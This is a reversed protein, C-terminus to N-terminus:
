CYIRRVDPGISIEGVQELLGDGEEGLLPLALHLLQLPSVIEGGLRTLNLHTNIGDRSRAKSIVVDLSNEKIEWNNSLDESLVSVFDAFQQGKSVTIQPTIPDSNELGCMRVLIRVMSKELGQIVNLKDLDNSAHTRLPLLTSLWFHVAAQTMCRQHPLQCDDVAYSSRYVRTNLGNIIIRLLNTFLVFPSKQPVAQEDSLLRTAQSSLTPLYTACLVWGGSSQFGVHLAAPLFDFMLFSAFEWQDLGKKVYRMHRSVQNQILDTKWGNYLYYFLELASRRPNSQLRLSYSVIGAAYLTPDTDEPWYSQSPIIYYDILPQIDSAHSRIVSVNQQVLRIYRLHELSRPTMAELQSKMFDMVRKLITSFSHHIEKSTVNSFRPDISSQGLLTSRMVNVTNRFLIQPSATREYSVIGGKASDSTLHSPGALLYHGRVRLWATLKNLTDRFTEDDIPPMILLLLWETGIDFGPMEFNELGKNKTLEALFMCWYLGIRTTKHPQPFVSHPGNMFFDSMKMGGETVKSVVDAWSSVLTRLVSPSATSRNQLNDYLVKRMWPVIDSQVQNIMEVRDLSSLSLDESDQSDVDMLCSANGRSISVPHLSDIQNMYHDVVTICDALLGETCAPDDLIGQSCLTCITTMNLAVITMQTSTSSLITQGMTRVVARMIEMTSRKNSAITDHLTTESVMEKGAQELSEAQGRVESETEVYQRGLASAMSNQWTKFPGYVAANRSSTVIFKTLNEWARINMLCAETHSRDAAVLDSILNIPPRQKVPAAFYLTSLLDHHNRLSALERHHIAEEKPLLRNHNPLLRIVFNGVSAESEAGKMHLIALAVMKLFIHFCRDEPRLMLLPPRDLEKLFQPSDYVEENRLNKLNQSAFFDFITGIVGGCKWWGWETMLYYCRNLSARLYDNFGASQRQNKNYLSFMGKLISQPISWGDFKAEHRSSQQVYGLDNFECLPLITFLSYWLQELLRANNTSQVDNQNLLPGIVDWFSRKSIHAADLVRILVVWSEIGSQDARIGDERVSFYQLDDYLTRLRELGDTLLLSGLKSCVTILLDELRFSMTKLDSRKRAMRLLQYVIVLCRTVVQLCLVDAQETLSSLRVIFDQLIDSMRILFDYQDQMGRFSLNLQLYSSITELVLSTDEKSQILQSDSASLCEIISDICLGIESSVTDDWQGWLFQKDCLSFSIGSRDPLMWDTPGNLAQALRGSGILTTRHFYVASHLPQVDFNVPYRTGFKGLGQLKDRPHEAGLYQVQTSTSTELVLPESPQRYRVAGIDIHAPFAKRRRHTKNPPRVKSENQLRTPSTTIDANAAPLPTATDLLFRNLQLNTQPEHRRRLAKFISDLSRKTTKFSSEPSLQLRAEVSTHLQAPRLLLSSHRHKQQRSQPDHLHIAPHSADHDQPFTPKWVTVFQDMSKQQPSLRLKRPAKSVLYAQQLSRHKGEKEAPHPPQPHQRQITCFLELDQAPATPTPNPCQPKLQIRGRRWNQLVAQAENTDERNALRIFKRSPSHRGKGIKSRAARAAVRIFQPLKKPGSHDPDIVDLIGLRPVDFRASQPGKSHSPEYAAPKSRVKNSNSRHHQANRGSHMRSLKQAPGFMTRRRKRTLTNISRAQRKRTPLMSDITDDEEALGTPQSLFSDGLLDYINDGGDKTFTDKSNNSEEDPESDDSLAPLGYNLHLNSTTSPKSPALIAVGRRVRVDPSDDQYRERQAPNPIASVKGATDLRLHSAPLVGRIKRRIKRFDLSEDSSSGSTSFQASGEVEVDSDILIPEMIPKVVSTGPTPLGTSSRRQRRSPGSMCSGTEHSALPLGESDVQRAYAPLVPSTAPPSAPIDFIDLEANMTNFSNLRSSRNSIPALKHRVSNFSQNKGANQRLKPAKSRPLDLIEDIDPFEEDDSKSSDQGLATARQEDGNSSKQPSSSNINWDVDLERNETQSSADPSSSSKPQAQRDDQSNALRMPTMGRARLTQRYKEQELMYPHLQIANRQRLARTITYDKSTIAPVRRANQTASAPLGIPSSNPSSIAVAKLEPSVSPRSLSSGTASTLQVYSRSISDDVPSGCVSGPTPTSALRPTPVPASTVSIADPFGNTEQLLIPSSTKTASASNFINPEGAVDSTGPVPCSLEDLVVGSIPLTRTLSCGRSANEQEGEYGDKKTTTSQLGSSHPNLIDELDTDDEEDESDPVVGIVKWSAM